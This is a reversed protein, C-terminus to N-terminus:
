QMNDDSTIMKALKTTVVHFANPINSIDKVHRNSFRLVIRSLVPTGHHLIPTGQGVFLNPM